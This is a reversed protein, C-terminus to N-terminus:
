RAVGSSVVEARSSSSEPEAVPYWCVTQALVKWLLGPPNATGTEGPVHEAM